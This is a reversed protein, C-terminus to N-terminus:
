VNGKAAEISPVFTKESNVWGEQFAAAKPPSVQVAWGQVDSWNMNNEAWAEIAHQDSDFLPATHLKMCADVDDRYDKSYYRAHHEAIVRVPVAWKSGDPMGFVMYKAMNKVATAKGCSCAGCGKCAGSESSNITINMKKFFHCM